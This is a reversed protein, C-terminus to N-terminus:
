LFASSPEAELQNVAKQQSQLGWIHEVFTTTRGLSHDRCRNQTLPGRVTLRVIKKAGGVVPRCPKIWIGPALHTESNQIKWIVSLYSLATQKIISLVGTSDPCGKM